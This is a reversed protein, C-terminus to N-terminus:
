TTGERLRVFRTLSSCFRRLLTKDAHWEDSLPLTEVEFSRSQNRLCRSQREQWDCENSDSSSRLRGRVEADYLYVVLLPYTQLKHLM